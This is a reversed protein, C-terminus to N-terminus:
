TDNERTPTSPVASAGLPPAAEAELRAKLQARWHRLTVIFDERPIYLPLWDTLYHHEIVIRQPGFTVNYASGSASPVLKPKGHGAADARALLLDVYGVDKAEEQLFQM